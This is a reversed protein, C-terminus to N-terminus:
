MGDVQRECSFGCKSVVVQLPLQPLTFNFIFSCHLSCLDSINKQCNTVTVSLSTFTTFACVEITQDPKTVNRSCTLFSYKRNAYNCPSCSTDCPLEPLNSRENDNAPPGILPIMLFVNCMALLIGFASFLIFCLQTFRWCWYWVHRLCSSLPVDGASKFPQCFLPFGHLWAVSCGLLHYHDVGLLEWVCCCRECRWINNSQIRYHWLSCIDVNSYRRIVLKYVLVRFFSSGYSSVFIFVFSSNNFMSPTFTGSLLHKTQVTRDAVVARISLCPVTSLTVAVLFTMYIHLSSKPISLPGKSAPSVSSEPPDQLPTSSVTFAFPQKVDNNALWAIAV